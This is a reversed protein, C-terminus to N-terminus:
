IELMREECFYILSGEMVLEDEKKYVSFRLVEGRLRYVVYIEDGVTISKKYYSTFEHIKTFPIEQKEILSIALTFITDGHLIVSKFRSNEMLPMNSHINLNGEWIMPLLLHNETIKLQGTQKEM